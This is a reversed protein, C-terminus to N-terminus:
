ASEAQAGEPADEEEPMEEEPDISYTCGVLTKGPHSDVNSVNLVASRIFVVGVDPDIFEESLVEKGFLAKAPTDIGTELELQRALPRPDPLDLIALVSSGAFAIHASRHGFVEIPTNLAYEVMFPNTAPLPRWGLSVATLPESQLAIALALFREPTDQCSILPALTVSGPDFADPQASTAPDQASAAASSLLSLALALLRTM